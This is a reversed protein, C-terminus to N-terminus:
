AVQAMVPVVTVEVGLDRLEQASERSLGDDSILEDIQAASCITAFAPHRFKSSDALVIVRRAAAIMARKVTAVELSTESLAGGTVAHCGIFAIDTKITKIFANGPDGVLTQSGPRVSGGPVVTSIQNHGALLQAIRLDNTVATLAIGRTVVERATEHVTSGSDFIVSSGPEVRLAAARAIAEKEARAVGAAVASAPEFTTHQTRQLVAGGHTRDLYGAAVLHELDRRITSLSAGVVEALDQVSAAGERRLHDLILTYRQPAIMEVRRGQLDKAM